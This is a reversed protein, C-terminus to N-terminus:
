SIAVYYYLLTLNHLGYDNRFTILFIESFSTVMVVIKINAM